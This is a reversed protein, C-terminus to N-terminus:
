FFYYILIQSVLAAIAFPRLSTSKGTEENKVTVEEKRLTLIWIILLTFYAFFVCKAGTVGFAVMWGRMIDGPGRLINAFFDAVTTSLGAAEVLPLM